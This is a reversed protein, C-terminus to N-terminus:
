RIKPVFGGLFIVQANQNLPQYKEGSIKSRQLGWQLEIKTAPQELSWDEQQEAAKKSVMSCLISEFYSFLICIATKWYNYDYDKYNEQSDFQKSSLQIKKYNDLLNLAETIKRLIFDINWTDQKEGIKFSFDMNRLAPQLDANKSLALLLAQAQQGEILVCFDLLVMKLNALIIQFNNADIGTFWFRSVFQFFRNLIDDAGPIIEKKNCIQKRIVIPCMIHCINTLRGLYLLIYYIEIGIRQYVEKLSLPKINQLMQWIAPVGSPMSTPMGYKIFRKNETPSAEYVSETRTIQRITSISEQMIKNFELLIPLMRNLLIEKKDNDPNFNTLTVNELAKSELLVNELSTFQEKPLGEESLMTILFDSNTAFDDNGLLEKIIKEEINAILKVARNAVGQSVSPNQFNQLVENLIPNSSINKKQPSMARIQILFMM